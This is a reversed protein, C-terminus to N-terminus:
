HDPTGSYSFVFIAAILFGASNLIFPLVVATAYLFGSLPGGVYNQIVTQAINTRSNAREFHKKELIVPILSQSATDSAVESIGILFAAVFLWYITV